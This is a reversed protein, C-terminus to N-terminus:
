YRPPIFGSNPAHDSASPGPHKASSGDGLPSHRSLDGTRRDGLLSPLARRGPKYAAGIAKEDHKNFAADWAAYAKEVDGRADAALSLEPAAAFLCLVVASAQALKM